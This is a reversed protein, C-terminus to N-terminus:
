AMATSNHAVSSIALFASSDCAGVSVIPASMASPRYVDSPDEWLAFLAYRPGAAQGHVPVRDGVLAGQDIEDYVLCTITDLESPSAISKANAAGNRM